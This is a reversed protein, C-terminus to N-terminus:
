RNIEELEVIFRNLSFLYREKIFSEVFKLNLYIDEVYEINSNLFDIKKVWEKLIEQFNLKDYGNWECMKELANYGLEDSYVFEAFPASSYRLIGIDSCIPITGQMAAELPMMGGGDIIGPSLFYKGKRYFEHEMSTVKSIVDVNDLKKLERIENNDWSGWNGLKVLFKLNQYHQALKLVTISGKNLQPNNFIFDYKREKWEEFNFKDIVEFGTQKPYLSFRHIPSMPYHPNKIYKYPAGHLVYDTDYEGEGGHVDWKLSITRIYPFREKLITAFSQYYPLVWESGWMGYGIYYDFPPMHQIIEIGKNSLEQYDYHLGQVYNHIGNEDISKEYPIKKSMRIVEFPFDKELGEIEPVTTIVCIDIDRKQLDILWEILAKEGGGYLPHFLNTGVLIRM